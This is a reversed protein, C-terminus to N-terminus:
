GEALMMARLGTATPHESDFDFRTTTGGDRILLRQCRYCLILEFLAQEDALARLAYRPLFCRMAEGPRFGRVLTLARHLTDGEWTALVEGPVPHPPRPHSHASPIRVLDLRTVQETAPLRPSPM